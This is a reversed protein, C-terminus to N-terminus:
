DGKAKTEAAPFCSAMLVAMTGCLLFAGDTYDIVGKNPSSPLSYIQAVMAIELVMSALGAGWCGRHDSFLGATLRMVGCLLYVNILLLGSLNNADCPIGLGKVINDDWFGCGKGTLPGAGLLAFDLVVAWVVLFYGLYTRMGMTRSISAVPAPPQSALLFRANLGLLLRCQRCPVGRQV